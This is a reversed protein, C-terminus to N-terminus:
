DRSIYMRSIKKEIKGTKISVPKVSITEVIDKSFVIEGSTFAEGAQKVEYVNNKENFESLKTVELWEPKQSVSVNSILTGANGIVIFSPTEGLQISKPHVVPVVSEIGLNMHVRKKLLAKLDKNSLTWDAELDAAFKGAPELERLNMLAGTLAFTDKATVSGDLDVDGAEFALWERQIPQPVTHNEASGQARVQQEQSTVTQLLSTFQKDFSRVPLASLAQVSEAVVEVQQPAKLSGAQSLAEALVFAVPIDGTVGEIDVSLRTDAGFSTVMIINQETYLAAEDSAVAKISAGEPLNVKLLAETMGDGGSLLLSYRTFSGNEATKASAQLQFNEMHKANDGVVPEIVGGQVPPPTISQQKARDVLDCGTVGGLVLPLSLVVMVGWPSRKRLRSMRTMKEM